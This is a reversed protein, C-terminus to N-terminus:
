ADEKRLLLSSYAELAAEDLPVEHGGDFEFVEGGVARAVERAGEPPNMTDARGITHLARFGGRDGSEALEAIERRFPGPVAAGALILSKCSAMAGDKRLEGLAVLAAVLIAGQSFGLIGDFP